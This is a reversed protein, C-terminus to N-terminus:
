RDRTPTDDEIRTFVEDSVVQWGGKETGMFTRNGWSNGDIVWFTDRVEVAGGDPQQAHIRVVREHTTTDFPTMFGSGIRGDKFFGAVAIRKLFPEYYYFGEGLSHVEDRSPIRTEITFRVVTRDRNFWAYTIAFYFETRGDAEQTTGRFTGMYPEFVAMDAPAAAQWKVDDFKIPPRDEARAQAPLGVLMVEMSAFTCFVAGINRPIRGLTM